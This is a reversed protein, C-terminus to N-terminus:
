SVSHVIILEGGFLQSRTLMKISETKVMSFMTKKFGLQGANEAKLVPLDGNEDYKVYDTYEFGALKTVFCLTGIQTWIWNKPINWKKENQQVNPKDPITLAKPKSPKKDVQGGNSWRKFENEWQILQNQYFAKKGM